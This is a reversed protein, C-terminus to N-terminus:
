RLRTVLIPLRSRLLSSRWHLPRPRGRLPWKRLLPIRVMKPENAEEALSVLVDFDFSQRPSAVMGREGTAATAIARVAVCM